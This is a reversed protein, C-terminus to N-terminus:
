PSFYSPTPLVLCCLKGILYPLAKTPNRLKGEFHKSVEGGFLATVRELIAEKDEMEKDQKGNPSASGSSDSMSSRKM